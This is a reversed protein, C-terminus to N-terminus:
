EGALGIYSRILEATDSLKKKEAISLATEGADTKAQVDAGKELLLSVIQTAGHGAASHLATFGGQQRANLDAGNEALLTVLPYSSIACASHIPAVKFSNASPINVDAGKEVLYRAIAEQGFFCAYGLLSFGDVSPLEIRDPSQAIRQKVAELDGLCVAEFLDLSPKYKKILEVAKKNGCYLAFLLLSVGEKTTREALSPDEVLCKELIDTAGKQISETIAPDAIM